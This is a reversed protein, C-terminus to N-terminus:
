WLVMAPEGGLSRINKKQLFYPEGRLFQIEWFFILLFFM